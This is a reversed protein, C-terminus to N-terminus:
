RCRPREIPSKGGSKGIFAKYANRIQGIGSCKGGTKNEKIEWGLLVRPITRFVFSRTICGAGAEQEKKFEIVSRLVWNELL